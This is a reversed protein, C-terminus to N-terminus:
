MTQDYCMIMPCMIMEQRYEVPAPQVGCGGCHWPPPAPKHAPPDIPMEVPPQTPDPAPQPDPVPSPDVPVPKTVVTGPPTYYPTSAVPQLAISGHAGAMLLAVIGLVHLRLNHFFEFM